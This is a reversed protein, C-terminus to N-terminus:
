SLYQEYYSIIKDVNKQRTNQKSKKEERDTPQRSPDSPRVIPRDSPHTTCYILYIVSPNTDFENIIIWFISYKLSFLFFFLIRSCPMQYSPGTNLLLASHEHCDVDQHVRQACAPDPTRHACCRFRKVLTSWRRTPSRRECVLHMRRSGFCFLFRVFICLIYLVEKEKYREPYVETSWTSIVYSTGRATRHSDVGLKKPLSFPILILFRAKNVASRRHKNAWTTCSPPLILQLNQWTAVSGTVLHQEQVVDHRIIRELAHICDHPYVNASSHQQVTSYKSFQANQYGQM